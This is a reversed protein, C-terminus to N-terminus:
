ERKVSVKWLGNERDAGFKVDLFQEILWMNTKAHNTIERVVFASDEDSLAMYPLVQDSCHVDLTGGSDMELKLAECANQAVKEARLGKEALCNTGLRTNEYEAWLVV